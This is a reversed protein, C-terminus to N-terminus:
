LRLGKTLVDPQKMKFVVDTERDHPAREGALDLLRRRVQALGTGDPTLSAEIVDFEAEADRIGLYITGDDRTQLEARFPPMLPERITRGVPYAISGGSWSAKGSASLISDPTISLALDRAEVRGDLRVRQRLFFPSLTALDATLSHIDLDVQNMGMSLILSAEGAQSRVDVSLPLQAGALGESAVRWDVISEIHRYRVHARGDWLSGDVGLVQIGLARMNTNPQIVNQWVYGAPVTIVLFVTLCVLFLLSFLITKKIVCVVTLFQDVGSVPM